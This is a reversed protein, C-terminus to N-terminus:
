LHVLQDREPGVSVTRIPVGCLDAIRRIYARAAAPLDDADRAGTIDESWGPLTEYVPEARELELTTDPLLDVQRGDVIYATAIKLVNFGSLVDLKTLVLETFGNVEAAYRLAVADLWGCRRPRGTTTGYEDWFHEGTGRLRDALEGHLETVMPGGGVRTSFCKAVGVVRDVRKPGFGLGTLAGGSTPSSSTVFPYDGHDVDLLTGQAGECLVRAGDNMRQNLYVAVDRLYPRLRLAAELYSQAAAQPDLTEVGYQQELIVNTRKVMEYLADAFAEEQAMLGTRIGQRGTKDLYAPGIGRLTTGIAEAGRAKESAADLAIHAPTIIHARTSIILRSPSIDVGMAQLGDMEKVLNVPNIVMGNGLVCTVQDHLIGSPILHLKFVTEDVYVTHGANDGGAFRAVIDSQAALWDAVRGKGEDGWQAGVLITAPM